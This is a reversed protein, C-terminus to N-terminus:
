KTKKSAQQRKLLQIQGAHYVDHCAIGRILKAHDFKSGAPVVHLESESFSEIVERLALHMQDLLKLDAKWGTLDNGDPRPFWNSGEYGFSGRKEGTLRRRVVYKWYAAHLTIEWINHRAPAPRWAATRADVGRLSGKLNPGHWAQRRYGEDILQLLVDRESMAVGPRSTKKLTQTLFM